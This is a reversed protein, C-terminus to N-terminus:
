MARNEILQMRRLPGELAVGGIISLLLDRPIHMILGAEDWIRKIVLFGVPVGLPKTAQVIRQETATLLADTVLLSHATASRSSMQASIAIKSSDSVNLDMEESGFCGRLIGTPHFRLGGQRHHEATPGLKPKLCPMVTPLVKCIREVSADVRGKQRIQRVTQSAPRRMVPRDNSSAGGGLAALIAGAIEDDSGENESM